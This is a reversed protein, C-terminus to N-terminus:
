QSLGKKETTRQDGAADWAVLKVLPEMTAPVARSIEADVQEMLAADAKALDAKRQREKANYFVPIVALLLLAACALAWRMPQFRHSARRATSAFSRKSESQEGLEIVAGRFLALAGEVRAVEAGCEACERIHQEGGPSREGAIWQAIQESSLHQNM